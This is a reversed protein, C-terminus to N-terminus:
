TFSRIRAKQTSESLPVTVSSEEISLKRCNGDPLRMLPRFAHIFTSEDHAPQFRGVNELSDLYNGAIM